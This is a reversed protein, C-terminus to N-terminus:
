LHKDTITQFSSSLLPGESVSPPDEKQATLMPVQIGNQIVPELVLIEGHRLLFDLRVNM